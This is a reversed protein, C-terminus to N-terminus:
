AGRTLEQDRGEAVCGPVESQARPLPDRKETNYAALEAELIEDTLGRREAEIALRDMAAFLREVDAERSLIWSVTRGAMRRREEDRRLLATVAAEVPIAVDITDPELM